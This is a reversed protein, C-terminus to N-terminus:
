PADAYGDEPLPLDAARALRGSSRDFLRVIRDEALSEPRWQFEEHQQLFKAAGCGPVLCERKGKPCRNFQCLRGLYRNTGPDLIFADLQHSAVGIETEEFLQRLARDKAKRLGNLDGLDMLWVALDVDKCEHWLEIRARRYPSFRPVEKWPATALSGTLAVAAVEPCEQWATTVADAARRFHRYQRLLMSNQEAIGAPSLAQEEERSEWEELDTEDWDDNADGM